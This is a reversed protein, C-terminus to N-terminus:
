IWLSAFQVHFPGTTAVIEHLIAKGSYATHRYHLPQGTIVHCPGTTHNRMWMPTAAGRLASSQGAGIEPDVVAPECLERPPQVTM